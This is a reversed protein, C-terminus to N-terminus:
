VFCFYEVSKEVASLQLCVLCWMTFVVSASSDLAVWLCSDRTETESMWGDNM